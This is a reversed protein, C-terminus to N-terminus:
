TEWREREDMKEFDEDNLSFLTEIDGILCTNDELYKVRLFLALPKSVVNLKVTVGKGIDWDDVNCFLPKNTIVTPIKM